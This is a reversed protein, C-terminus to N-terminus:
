LEPDRVELDIWPSVLRTGVARVRITGPTGETRVWCARVGGRVAGIAPGVVRGPGEVEFRLCEDAFPLVNGNGDLVRFVVRTADWDGASLEASDASAELREAHGAGYTRRAAEKGGVYGILEYADQGEGWGSAYRLLFAALDARTKRYRVMFLGAALLTPLSFGGAGGAAFEAVARRLFARAWPAYPLADLRAGALDRIVVPPHPLNPFSRRDPFFVGVEEGNRLLRVSDCNTFVRIPATRAGDREGKAFLSAAELVVREAPDVQSAYAWAAYKPERFADCVGHHCVRDGSGFERHTNYDWACWGIAGSIGPDGMARDLVRLHRLAHEVLREEQDWRKTPFMHGTHETVLYPVAREGRRGTVRGPSRLAADGGSHVFDNMTYVDELLESRELYRVGGTQRTPDLTRALRNTGEYLERCDASENIRVGWLVVSPRNRDRVVMEAVSALANDRWAGTGIHQWGPIEEFVLLGIEDCRDMFHRSQPYHSTRVLNVGLGFRLRDAERREERACMAGGVYPYSQHRNLGRLFLRRGNLFFGRPTFRASRLGFRATEEDAEPDDVSAGPAPLLSVKAAYLVPSGVDWLEAGSLDDLYLEHVSLGPPVAIKAEASRLRGGIEAELRVVREAAGGLGSDVSVACALGALPRDSDAPRLFLDAIHARPVVRLSVDRHIGGYSLYDVVGGFPPVDPRETSDVRVVLACRAGPRAAPGLEASFPTWGGAHSAVRVGGAWVDAVAMVGEFDVFVRGDAAEAPIDIDIRYTSVFQSAREDFCDLPLERNVHPLSVPSWGEGVPCGPDAYEDRFDERFLWGRNMAREIRM